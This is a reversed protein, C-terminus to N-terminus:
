SLVPRTTAVLRAQIAAVNACAANNAAPIQSKISVVTAFEGTTISRLPQVFSRAATAQDAPPPWWRDQRVANFYDRESLSVRPTNSKKITAKLFQRGDACNAWFAVDSGALERSWLDSVIESHLLDLDKNQASADADNATGMKSDPALLDRLDKLR